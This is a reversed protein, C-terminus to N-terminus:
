EGPAELVARGAATLEYQQWRISWDIYGMEVLARVDASDVETFLTGSDLRRLVDREAETLM